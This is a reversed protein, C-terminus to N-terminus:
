IIKHSKYGKLKGMAGNMQFSLHVNNIGPKGNKDHTGQMLM